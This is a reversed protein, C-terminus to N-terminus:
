LQGNETETESAEAEENTEEEAEKRLREEEALRAEELATLNTLEVDDTNDYEKQSFIEDAKARAEEETDAEVEFTETHIRAQQFLDIKFTAM